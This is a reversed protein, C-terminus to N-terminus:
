DTIKALNAPTITWGKPVGGPDVIEISVGMALMAGLTDRTLTKTGAIKAFLQATVNAPYVKQAGYVDKQTVTALMM